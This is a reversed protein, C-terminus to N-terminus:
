GGGYVGVYEGVMEEVVRAGPLEWGRWEDCTVCWEILREIEDQDDPTFLRGTVGDEIRAALAGIRAAIVPVKARWLESLMMCYTEPFRAPMFAIDVSALATPLAQRELIGHFFIGPEDMGSGGYFHLEISPYKARVRRFPELLLDWGKQPLLRGFFGIKQAPGSTTPRELPTFPEIGYEIVQYDAPFVKNLVDALFKSPVIRRRFLSLCEALYKRRELLISTIDAGFVNASYEPTFCEQPDSVGEMTYAPTIAYYDHFSVISPAPYDLVQQLVSLPWHVFHVVHILDPKLIRLVYGLTEECLGHRLPALPPIAVFPLTYGVKNVCQTVPLLKLVSNHPFLLWPEFEEGEGQGALGQTLHKTFLEVGGINYFAHAIFLIRTKRSKGYSAAM